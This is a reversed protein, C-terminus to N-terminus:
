AALRAGGPSKPTARLAGPLILCSDGFEHQEYGAREAHRFSRDLLARPAFAELLSYHSTGPEHLGTLLADCSRRPSGPGLLLTTRESGARVSGSGSAAELARTVSTGAAIVRGGAHKTRNVIAACAAGIEYREALPLRRDLEPDGTSSVGAAHTLHALTVGRAELRFLTEFRLPKGASPLELAWPRAAYVNQVDWLALPREIYSYQIPRAARYLAQWLASGAQEFRIRLLRPSSEDRSVVQASLGSGFDLRTGPALERPKPRAETPLRSDGVGFSLALWTGDDLQSLLRLELDAVARLSAPLTAADNLVLADGRRLFEPLDTIAFDAYRDLEPDVVLLRERNPEARPASRARM